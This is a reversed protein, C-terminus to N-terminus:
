RISDETAIYSEPVGPAVNDLSYGIMSESHFIGGSMSAVIKFETLGLEVDSTSDILNYGRLHLQIVM